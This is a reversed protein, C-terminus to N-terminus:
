RIGKREITFLYPANATADGERHDRFSCDRETANCSRLAEKKLQLFGSDIDYGLSGLARRAADREDSRNLLSLSSLRRTMRFAGRDSVTVSRDVVSRDFTEPWFDEGVGEILYPHVDDSTYISGEPDAGVVVLEPKRETLYRGAGSITGARRGLRRSVM